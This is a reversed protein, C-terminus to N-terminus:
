EINQVQERMQDIILKLALGIKTLAADSSKSCLTNAERNFEQALFDLKRGAPSGLALIAHAEVCHSALRDLEERVDAKAVLLAVEQELRAAELKGKATGELLANTSAQLKALMAQPQTAALAEAQATLSEIQTIQATILAQLRSGESARAEDLAAFAKLATNLIDACIAEDAGDEKAGEKWELVGRMALLTELKVPPLNTANAAEDATSKLAQLLELNLSPVVGQMARDLNLNLQVNGRSMGQKSLAKLPEELAELGSPLRLRLDHSKGNVSRLELSWAGYSNSGDAKAFGTMSRITM